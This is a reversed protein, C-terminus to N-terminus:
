KGRARVTGRSMTWEISPAENLKKNIINVAEQKSIIENHVKSNTYYCGAGMLMSFYSLLLAPIAHRAGMYGVGSPLYLQIHYNFMKSTLALFISAWFVVFNVFEFVNCAYIHGLHAHTELARFGDACPFFIFFLTIYNVGFLIWYAKNLAYNYLSPSQYVLAMIAETVTLLIHCILLINCAIANRIKCCRERRRHIMKENIRVSGYGRTCLLYLSNIIILFVGIVHLSVFAIFVLTAKNTFAGIDDKDTLNEMISM